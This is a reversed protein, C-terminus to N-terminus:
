LGIGFYGICVIFGYQVYVQVCGEDGVLGEGMCMDCGIVVFGDDVDSGNCVMVVKGFM